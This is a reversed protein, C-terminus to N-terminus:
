ENFYLQFFNAKVPTQPLKQLHASMLTYANQGVSLKMWGLTIVM